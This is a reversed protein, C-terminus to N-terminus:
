LSRAVRFGISESPEVTIAQARKSSRIGAADHNWAGGRVVRGYQHRLDDDLWARGDSPASVYSKHYFDETWEAVNGLMDFVGFANAPFSGVPATGVWVDRGQVVGECCDDSGYNAQEHSAVDGWWYATSTGARAVYEWEAESPLRYKKGTLVSLKKLYEQAEDWSVMEVPCEPGCASNASPTSGMVAAWQAQTVEMRGMYFSGVTVQHAPREISLGATSGMTFTGTPILVLDPCVDCDKQLAASSGQACAGQGLLLGCLVWCFLTVAKKM